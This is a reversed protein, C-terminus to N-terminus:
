YNVNKGNIWGETGSALKIKYWFFPIGEKSPESKESCALIEIDTNKALQGISLSQESAQQKIDAMDAVVVTRDLNTGKALFTYRLKDTPTYETADSVEETQCDFLLFGGKENPKVCFPADKGNKTFILVSNGQDLCIDRYFAGWLNPSNTTGNKYLILEEKTGDTENIVNYSGKFYIKEFIRNNDNYKLSERELGIHVFNATHSDPTQLTLKDKETYRITYKKEIDTFSGDDVRNIKVIDSWEKNESDYNIDIENGKILLTANHECRNAWQKDSLQQYLSEELWTGEPLTSPPTNEQKPPKVSEGSPSNDKNQCAAFTLFLLWILCQANNM